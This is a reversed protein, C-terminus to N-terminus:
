DGDRGAFSDSLRCLAVCEHRRIRRERSAHYGTRADPRAVQQASRIGSMTSADASVTEEADVYIKSLGATSTSRVHDVDDISDIAEELANTILEEVKQAPAGPWRTIVACTRVTYEPDERRPMTLSSIVGWLMLLSAATITIPRYRIAAASLNM